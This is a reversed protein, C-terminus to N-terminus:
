ELPTFILSCDETTKMLGISTDLEMEEKGPECSLEFNLVMKALALKAEMLAFRMGICNRPGLGFPLFTGSRIQDKNEPLFRDPRFKTPQPWYKEDRQISWTPIMIMDKARVTVNTGPITYDKTCQRETFIATPHLRLTENMVADLFKAELLSQYTLEGHDKIIDRLEQRLRQQEEPNQALMHAVFCLTNATTDFGALIFLISNSVVVQDTITYKNTNANPNNHDKRAEMMLDLFDGRKHQQNERSRMAEEVVEKFFETEPVTLNIQLAQCLKPCMMFFLFKLLRGTSIKSMAQVKQNFISNGDDALTNTEMGFACSSIVELSYLGFAKRIKIKSNAKMERLIYANLEEAKHEVLRFMGKMKGSTFIPSLLSRVGKWEDGTLVTLIGNFIKDRKSMMKTERRNIFHDFDKILVAKVIDPDGIMLVPKFQEYFGCLRSGGHYYAEDAHEWRAKKGCFIQTHLHGLFPLLNPATPVGRASWYNHHYRSYAYLATVIATVVLVFTVLM